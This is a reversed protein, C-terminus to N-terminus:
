FCILSVKIAPSPGPFVVNTTFEQAMETNIMSVTGDGGNAVFVRRGNISAAIGKPSRSGSKLSIRQSVDAQPNNVVTNFVRPSLAQGAATTLEFQESMGAFFPLQFRIMTDTAEVPTIVVSNEGLKLTDVGPIM